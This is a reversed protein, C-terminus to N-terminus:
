PSGLVARATASAKSRAQVAQNTGRAPLRRIGYGNSNSTVKMTSQQRYWCLYWCSSARYESAFIFLLHRPLLVARAMRTEMIMEIPISGPDSEFDQRGAAVARRRSECLDVRGLGGRM